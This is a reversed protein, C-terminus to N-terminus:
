LLTKLSSSIEPSNPLDLNCKAILQELKYQNSNYFPLKNYILAFLTVGLSWM